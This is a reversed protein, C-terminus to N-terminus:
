ERLLKESERIQYSIMLAGKSSVVLVFGHSFSHFLNQVGGGGGWFFFEPYAWPM